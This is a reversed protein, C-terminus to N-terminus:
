KKRGKGVKLPDPLPEGVKEYAEPRMERDVVQGGLAEELSRTLDLCRTGKVGRVEIRVQGDQDIFVEIEQLDM